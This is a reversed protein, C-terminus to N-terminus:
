DIIATVKVEFVYRINRNSNWDGHIYARDLAPYGLLTALSTRPAPSFKICSEWFNAGGSALYASNGSALRSRKM